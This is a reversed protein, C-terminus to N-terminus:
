ALFEAPVSQLRIIDQIKESVAFGKACQVSCQQCDTCLKTSPQLHLASILDHALTYNRYGYAYMYARMLEPVPLQYPCQKECKRCGQCYLGNMLRGLDLDHKETESLSLDAMVALNSELQDFTTMGPITTHVNEDQLVWKLAAQTNVRKIRLKDLFGGAMTKMAIIGIGAAAARAIAKKMEQQHDQKFNYSTLVVDYFKGDVVANLVEPENSHTSVGVWKAKGEKKAKEMARIYPEFMVNEKSSVAHLLLIDVYDLQLRKLSTELKGTMEQIIQQERAPDSQDPKIKTELVYSNRDYKKIIEGIMEENRGRQYGHATDLLTIGAKLAAEVLEPNDANMVGMSVVPVRLGTKGLTRYVLKNGGDPKEDQKIQQARASDIILLGAPGSLGVKIFDRRKWNQKKM